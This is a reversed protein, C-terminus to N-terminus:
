HLSQHLSLIFQEGNQWERQRRPSMWTARPWRSSGEFVFCYRIFHDNYVPKVTYSKNTAILWCGTFHLFFIPTIQLLKLIQFIVLVQRTKIMGFVYYLSANRNKTHKPHCRYNFDNKDIVFHWKAQMKLVTHIPYTRMVHCFSPTSRIWRYPHWLIVKLLM